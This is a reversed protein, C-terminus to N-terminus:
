RPEITGTIQTIRRAEKLSRAQGIGFVAPRQGRGDGTGVLQQVTVAVDVGGV